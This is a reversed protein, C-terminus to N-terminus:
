DDHKNIKKGDGTNAKQSDADILDDFAITLIHNAM